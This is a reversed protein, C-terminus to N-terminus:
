RVASASVVAENDRGPALENLFGEVTAAIVPQPDTLVPHHVDNIIVQDRDLANVTDSVPSESTQRASRWANVSQPKSPADLSGSQSGFISFPGPHSGPVGESRSRKTPVAPNSGAVGQGGPM